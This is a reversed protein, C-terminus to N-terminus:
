KPLCDVRTCASRGFFCAGWSGAVVVAYRLITCNNECQAANQADVFLYVVM